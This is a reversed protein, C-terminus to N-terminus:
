KTTLVDLAALLCGGLGAALVYPNMGIAPATRVLYGEAGCLAAGAVGWWRELDDIPETGAWDGGAESTGVEGGADQAQAVTGIPGILGAAVLAAVLLGGRWRDLLTMRTM